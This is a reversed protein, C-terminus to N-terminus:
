GPNCAEKKRKGWQEEKGVHMNKWKKKGSLNEMHCNNQEWVYKKYILASIGKLLFSLNFDPQFLPSNESIEKAQLVQPQSFPM